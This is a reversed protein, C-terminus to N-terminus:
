PKTINTDISIANMSEKSLELSDQKEQANKLIHTTNANQVHLNIFSYLLEIKSKRIKSIASVVLRRVGLICNCPKM